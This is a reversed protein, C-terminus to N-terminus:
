PKAAPTAGTTVPEAVALHNIVKTVGFTESTLLEAKAKAKATPVTGKLTIVGDETGEFDFKTTHLDKDWHLRGYVRAEVGMNHVSQKARALRERVGEAARKAGIKVDQAAEGVKERVKTGVQGSVRGIGAWSVLAAGVLAVAVIRGKRSM